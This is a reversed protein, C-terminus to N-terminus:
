VEEKEYPNEVIATADSLDRLFGCDKLKQAFANKNANLFMVNENEPVAGDDAARRYHAQSVVMGFHEYMLDLFRDFTIKQGAGVLSMVLFKIIEESLTFRMGPGSVPILIGINKALKRFLKYTDAEAISFLM